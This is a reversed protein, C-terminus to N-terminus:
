DSSSSSGSSSSSSSSRLSSNSEISKTRIMKKLYCNKPCQLKNFQPNLKEYRWLCTFHYAHGCLYEERSSKAFEVKCLSCKEKSLYSSSIVSTQGSQRRHDGRISCCCNEFACEKGNATTRHQHGTAQRISRNTASSSARSNLTSSSYGSCISTGCESTQKNGNTHLPLRTSSHNSLVSQGVIRSHTELYILNQTKFSRKSRCAAFNTM